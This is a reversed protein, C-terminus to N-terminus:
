QSKFYRKINILKWCDKTRWMDSMDWRVSKLFIFPKIHKIAKGKKESIHVSMERFKKNLKRSKTTIRFRFYRPPGMYIYCHESPSNRLYVVSSEFPYHYIVHSDLHKNSTSTVWGTYWRFILVQKYTRILSDFVKM